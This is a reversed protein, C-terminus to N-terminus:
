EVPIDALADDDDFDDYFDDFEYDANHNDQQQGNNVPPNDNANNNQKSPLPKGNEDYKVRERKFKLIMKYFTNYATYAGQIM